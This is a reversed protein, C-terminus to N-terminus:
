KVNEFLWTYDSAIEYSFYGVQSLFFISLFICLDGTKIMWALMPM